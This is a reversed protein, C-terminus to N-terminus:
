RNPTVGIEHYGSATFVFLNDTPIRIASQEKENRTHRWLLNLLSQRLAQSWLHWSARSVASNSLQDKFAYDRLEIALSNIGAQQWPRQAIENSGDGL